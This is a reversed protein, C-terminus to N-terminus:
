LSRQRLDNEDLVEGPTEDLDDELYLADWGIVVDIGPKNL